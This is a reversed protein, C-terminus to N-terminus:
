ASSARRDFRRCQLHEYAQVLTEATYCDINMPTLTLVLLELIDPEDDVLLCLPRSM